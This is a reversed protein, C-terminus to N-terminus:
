FANRRAQVPQQQQQQSKMMELLQEFANAIRELNTDISALRANVEPPLDMQPPPPPPPPTPPEVVVVDDVGDEWVVEEDVWDELDPFTVKEEAYRVQRGEEIVDGYDPCLVYGLCAMGVGSQTVLVKFAYVRRCSTDVLAWAKWEWANKDGQNKTEGLGIDVETDGGSESHLASFVAKQLDLVKLERGGIKLVVDERDNDTKKSVHVGHRERFVPDDIYFFALDEAPKFTDLPHHQVIHEVVLSAEEDEVDRFVFKFRLARNRAVFAKNWWRVGLSVDSAPRPVLLSFSMQWTQRSDLTIPLVSGSGSDSDSTIKFSSVPTYESNHSDGVLRYYVDVESISVASSSSPSSKNFVSIAGTFYDGTESFVTGNAVIPPDTVQKLILPLKTHTKFDSRAPRRHQGEVLQNSSVKQEPPLLYPTLPIYSRFGGESITTINISSSTSPTSTDFLCIRIYPTPCSAVKATIRIGTIKVETEEEEEEEVVWEAMAYEEESSSTRFIVMQKTIDVVRRQLEFEERTFTQFYYANKFYCKGVRVLVTPEEPEAGRSKWRRLQAVQAYQTEDTALNTDEVSCWEELTDTYGYIGRAFPFFAGYPYECHHKARHSGSQCPNKTSCCGWTRNWSDYEARHFSCSQPGSTSSKFEKDCQVCIFTQEKERELQSSLLTTLLTTHLHKELDQHHLQIADVVDSKLEDMLTQDIQIDIKMDEAFMAVLERDRRVADEGGYEKVFAAAEDEGEEKPVGRAPDLTKLQTTQYIQLSVMLDNTVLGLAKACAEFKDKNGMRLRRAIVGQKRYAEILATCDKLVANMRDIVRRTASSISIEGEGESPSPLLSRLAPLLGVCFTVREVLDRCKLSTEQAAKEVEIILKLMIFAPAVLPLVKGIDIISDLTNIANQIYNGGNDPSSPSPSPPHLSALSIGAVTQLSLANSATGAFGIDTSPPPPPPPALPSSRDAPTTTTTFSRNRTHIPPEPTIDRHPVLPSSRDRDAAATTTLSRTRPPPEPTNSAPTIYGSSNPTIDKSALPSSRDRDRNTRSRTLTTPDIQPSSERSKTSYRDIFLLLKDANKRFTAPYGLAIRIIRNPDIVFVTNPEARPDGEDAAMGYISAIEGADDAVVQVKRDISGPKIGYRVQSAKWKRQDNLWSGSVGILKINRKEFESYQRAVELLELPFSSGPHSFIISWSDEVWEHYQLLGSATHAEFDPALNGVSVDVEDLHYAM